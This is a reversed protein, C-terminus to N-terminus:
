EDGEGFLARMASELEEANNVKSISRPLNSGTFISSSRIM